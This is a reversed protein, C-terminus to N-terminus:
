AREYESRTLFYGKVTGLDGTAESGVYTVEAAYYRDDTYVEHSIDAARDGKRLIVEVPRGTELARSCRDIFDRGKTSRAWDEDGPQVRMRLTCRRAGSDWPMETEGNTVDSWVTIIGTGDAKDAGWMGRHWAIGKAVFEDRTGTNERGM